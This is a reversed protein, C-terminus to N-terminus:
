YIEDRLKMLDEDSQSPDINKGCTLVVFDGEIRPDAFIFLEKIWKLRDQEESKSKRRPKFKNKCASKMAIFFTTEIKGYGSVVAYANVVVDEEFKSLEIKEDESLESEDKICEYIKKQFVCVSNNNEKIEKHEQTRQRHPLTPSPNPIPQNKPQPDDKSFRSTVWIYANFRNPKSNPSKKLFGANVLVKLQTRFEDPTLFCEASSKKRGCIFEFPALQIEINEYNLTWIQSRCKSFAWTVFKFTNENQFWGMERFYKPVPTEFLYPIKSMSVGNQKYLDPTEAISLNVKQETASKVLDSNLRSLGEAEVPPKDNIGGVKGSSGKSQLQKSENFGIAEGNLAYIEM